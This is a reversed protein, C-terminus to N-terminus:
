HIMSKQLPQRIKVKPHIISDLDGSFNPRIHKTENKLTDKKFCCDVIEWSKLSAINRLTM